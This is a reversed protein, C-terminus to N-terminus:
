QHVQVKNAMYVVAMTRIVAGLTDDVEDGYQSVGERLVRNTSAKSKCLEKITDMHEDLFASVQDLKSNLAVEENLAKGSNFVEENVISLIELPFVVSQVKREVKDKTQYERTVKLRLIGSTIWGEIEFINERVMRSLMFTPEIGAM